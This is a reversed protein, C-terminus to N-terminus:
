SNKITASLVKEEYERYLLVKTCRGMFDSVLHYVVNSCKYCSVMRIMQTKPMGGRM